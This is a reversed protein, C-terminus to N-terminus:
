LVIEKKTAVNQDAAMATKEQRLHEKVMMSMIRKSDDSNSSNSKEPIKKDDNGKEWTTM